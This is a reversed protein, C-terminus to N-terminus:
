NENNDQYNMDFCFHMTDSGPGSSLEPTSISFMVLDPEHKLRNIFLDFATSEFDGEIEEECKLYLDEYAPQISNFEGTEPIYAFVLAPSEFADEENCVLEGTVPCYLNLHNLTLTIIQM